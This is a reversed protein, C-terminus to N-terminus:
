SGSIRDALVVTRWQHNGNVVPGSCTMLVVSEVGERGALLAGMDIVGLEYDLTSRVIYRYVSSDDLTVEIISGPALTALRYFVGPAGGYSYHAALFTSRGTGPVGSDGPNWGVTATDQPVDLRGYPDRGLRAIPADVGLSEVRLTAPEPGVPPPPPVADRPNQGYQAVDEEVRAIFRDDVPASMRTAGDRGIYRLEDGLSPAAVASQANGEQANFVAM